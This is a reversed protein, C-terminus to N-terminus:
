NCASELIEIAAKELPDSTKQTAIIRKACDTIDRLRDIDGAAKMDRIIKKFERQDITGITKITHDLEEDDIEIDHCRRKIYEVIIAREDKMMRYDARSVFVLLLVGRIERGLAEDARGEDSEVYQGIAHRAVSGVIEGTDLDVASNVRDDIFNRHANRLHCFAAMSFKGNDDYARKITIDRETTLGRQDTYNIHYRGRAPIVQAKYFNFQEWNDSQGDLATDGTRRELAVDRRVVTRQAKPKNRSIKKSFSIVSWLLLAVFLVTAFFYIYADM